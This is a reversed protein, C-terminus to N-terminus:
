ENVTLLRSLQSMTDWGTFKSKLSCLYEVLNARLNSFEVM